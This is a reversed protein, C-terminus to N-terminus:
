IWDVDQMSAPSLPKYTPCWPLADDKWPHAKLWEENMEVGLGVGTPISLFGDTQTPFDGNCADQFWPKIGGEQIMFNPTCVDLHLSAMTCIPGYPNHPQFGTYYAEAMAAIKKTELIGGCHIVDPQVMSIIQRHLLEAFEWKTFLREGTAIPISVSHAVKELADLNEPPVPEEYAYPRYEEMANGIRIADTPALRGHAEIILEVDEGVAERVAKLKAVAM